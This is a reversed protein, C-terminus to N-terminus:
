RGQKLKLMLNLKLKKYLTSWCLNVVEIRETGSSNESSFFFFFVNWPFTNKATKEQEQFYKLSCLTHRFDIYLTCCNIKLHCCGNELKYYHKDNSDVYLLSKINKKGGIYKHNRPFGSKEHFVFIVCFINTHSM